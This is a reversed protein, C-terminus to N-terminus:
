ILSSWGKNRRLSVRDGLGERFSGEVQVITKTLVETNKILVNRIERYLRRRVLDTEGRITCDEFGGNVRSGCLKKVKKLDYRGLIEIEEGKREREEM